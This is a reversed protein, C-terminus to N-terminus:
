IVLCGDKKKTSISQFMIHCIQVKSRQNGVGPTVILYKSNDRWGPIFAYKENMTTTFYGSVIRGVAIKAQTVLPEHDSCTPQKVNPTGSGYQDAWKNIMYPPRTIAFQVDRPKKCRM